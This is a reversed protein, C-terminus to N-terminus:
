DFLGGTNILNNAIEINKNEIEFGIYKRNLKKAVLATKGSGIFPDFILCGDNTFNKIIISILKSPFSDKGPYGKINDRPILLVDPYFESIKNNIIKSDKKKFCLIHCYNLIYLNTSLSKAWIKYNFLIANNLSNIIDIHKTYITGNVKRDTTISILVGNNDLKNFCKLYITNIFNKYQELSYNTEAADPPSMIILNPRLDLQDILNLSNGCYIKNTEM